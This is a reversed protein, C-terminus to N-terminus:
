LPIGTKGEIWDLVQAVRGFGSPFRALACGQKHRWSTVGWLYWKKAHNNQVPCQLPGGSDGGCINQGDYSVGACLMSRDITVHGYYYRVCDHHSYVKVAAEKLVQFYLAFQWKNVFSTRQPILVDNEM